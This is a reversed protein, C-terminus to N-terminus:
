KIIKLESIIRHRQEQKDKATFVGDVLQLLQNFKREVERKMEILMDTTMEDADEEGVTQAVMIRTNKLLDRTSEAIEQAKFLALETERSINM